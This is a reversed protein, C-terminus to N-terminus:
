PQAIPGICEDLAAILKAEYGDRVLREARAAKVYQNVDAGMRLADIPFLPKEPKSAKCEVGVAKNVNRMGGTTAFCGTMLSACLIIFSVLSIDLLIRSTRRKM